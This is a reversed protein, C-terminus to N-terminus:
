ERELILKVIPRSMPGRKEPANVSARPYEFMFEM